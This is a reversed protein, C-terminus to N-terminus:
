QTMLCRIAVSSQMNGFGVSVGGQEVGQYLCSSVVRQWVEFPKGAILAQVRNLHKHLLAHQELLVRLSVSCLM